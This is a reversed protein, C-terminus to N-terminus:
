DVQDYGGGVCSCQKMLWNQCPLPPSPPWCRQQFRRACGPTGTPQPTVTGAACVQWLSRRSPRSCGWKTSSPFGVNPFLRESNTQTGNTIVAPIMGNRLVGIVVDPTRELLADEALRTTLSQLTTWDLLIPYGAVNTM